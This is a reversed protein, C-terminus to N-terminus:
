LYEQYGHRGISEVGAPSLGCTCAHVCVHAHMCVHMYACM